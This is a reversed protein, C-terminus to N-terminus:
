EKWWEPSDRKQWEAIEDKENLYYLRYSEVPDDRKYEDPMALPRDTIGKSPFHRKIWEQDAWEMVEMCAHNKEYRYTYEKCLAKGFEILWEFNEKSESAWKICPHGEHTKRYPISGSLLPFPVSTGTMAQPWLEHQYAATCAIQATELPMKVIHTDAHAKAAEECDEDLYFINM